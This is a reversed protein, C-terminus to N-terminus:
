ILLIPRKGIFLSKLTWVVRFHEKAAGFGSYDLGLDLKPVFRVPFFWYKQIILCLVWM